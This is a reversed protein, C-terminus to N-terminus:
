TSSYATAPSHISCAQLRAYMHEVFPALREYTCIASEDFWDSANRRWRPVYRDSHENTRHVLVEWLLSRLGLVRPRSCISLYELYRDLGALKDVVYVM